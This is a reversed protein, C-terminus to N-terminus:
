SAPAIAETRQLATWRYRAEGGIPSGGSWPNVDLLVPAIKRSGCKRAAVGHPPPRWVPTRAGTQSGVKRACYDYMPDDGAVRLDALCRWGPRRGAISCRVMLAESIMARSGRIFVLGSILRGNFGPAAM